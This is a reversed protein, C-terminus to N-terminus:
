KDRVMESTFRRMRVWNPTPEPYASIGLEAYARITAM